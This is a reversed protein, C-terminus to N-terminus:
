FVHYFFDGKNQKRSSKNYATTKDNEKENKDHSYTSHSLNEVRLSLKKENRIFIREEKRAEFKEEVKKKEHTWNM